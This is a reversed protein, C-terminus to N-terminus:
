VGATAKAQHRYLGRGPALRLLAVTFGAAVWGDPTGAATRIDEDHAMGGGPRRVENRAVHLRVLVHHIRAVATVRM